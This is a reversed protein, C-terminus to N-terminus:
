QIVSFVSYRFHLFLKIMYISILMKKSEHIIKLSFICVSNCHYRQELVVHHEEEGRVDVIFVARSTNKKDSKFKNM